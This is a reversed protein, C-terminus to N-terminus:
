VNHKGKKKRPAPSSAVPNGSPDPILLQFTNPMFQNSGDSKKLQATRILGRERLHRTAKSVTSYSCGTMLAIDEHTISVQGSDDAISALKALVLNAVMYSTRVGLAWETAKINM